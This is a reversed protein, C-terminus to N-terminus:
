LLLPSFLTDYIIEDSYSNTTLVKSGDYKSDNKKVSCGAFSMTTILSMVLSTIRIGYRKRKDM